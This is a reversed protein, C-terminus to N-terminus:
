REPYSLGEDRMKKLLEILGEELDDSSALVMGKDGPSEGLYIDFLSFWRKVEEEPRAFFDQSSLLPVYFPMKRYHPHTALYAGFLERSKALWGDKLSYAQNLMRSMDVGQSAWSERVARVMPVEPPKAAPDPKLFLLNMAGQGFLAERQKEGSQDVFWYCLDPVYDDINYKKRGAQIDEVDKNLDPEPPKSGPRRSLGSVPVFTEMHLLLASRLPDDSAPKVQLFTQARLGMQKETMEVFRNVFQLWWQRQGMPAPFTLPAWYLQCRLLETARRFPQVDRSRDLPTLREGPRGATKKRSDEEM